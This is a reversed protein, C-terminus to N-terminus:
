TVNATPNSAAFDGPQGGAYAASTGGVFGGLLTLGKDPITVNETYTGAAVSITDNAPAANVAAQVSTFPRLASGDTVGSLNRADVFMAPVVRAELTDFALRFRKSVARRGACRTFLCDLWRKWSM